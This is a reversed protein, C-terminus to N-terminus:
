SCGARSWRPTPDPSSSTASASSPSPRRRHRAHEGGRAPLRAGRRHDRRVARGPGPSQGARCHSHPRGPAPGALGHRRPGPAGAPRGLAAAGQDGSRDRRAITRAISRPSPHRPWRFTTSPRSCRALPAPGTGRCIVEEVVPWPEPPVQDRCWKFEAVLEPPFIGDGSAVIQGLKIYTPGLQEAAVRLRRSIGGDEGLGWTATRHPVVPRACWRPPAGHDGGQSGAAAEPAPDSRPTLRQLEARTRALGAKWALDRWTSFGPARM